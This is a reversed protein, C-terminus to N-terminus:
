PDVMGGRLVLCGPQVSADGCTRALRSSPSPRPKPQSRTPNRSSAPFITAHGLGCAFRPELTLFCGSLCSGNIDGIKTGLPALFTLRQRSDARTREAFRLFSLHCLM